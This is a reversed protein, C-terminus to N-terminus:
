GLTLDVIKKLQKNDINFIKNITKVYNAEWNHNLWCKYKM